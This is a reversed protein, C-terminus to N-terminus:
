EAVPPALPAQEANDPANEGSQTTTEPVTVPADRDDAISNSLMAPGFATLFIAIVMFSVAAWKTWKRLTQEAGYAGLTDSLPSAGGGGGMMGGLGGGKGEQMLVVGILFTCVCLYTITILVLIFTSM